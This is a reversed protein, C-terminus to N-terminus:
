QPAGASSLVPHAGLLSWPSPFGKTVQRLSVSSLVEAGGVVILLFPAFVLKAEGRWGIRGKWPLLDSPHFVADWAV